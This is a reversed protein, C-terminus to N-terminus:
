VPVATFKEIGVKVLSAFIAVADDELETPLQAVTPIYPYDLTLPSLTDTLGGTGIAKTYIQNNALCYYGLLPSQPRLFDHYQSIWCLINGTGNLASADADRVTAHRMQSTLANLPTAGVGNTLVVTANTMLLHRKTRDSATQEALKHLANAMISELELTQRNIVNKDADTGVIALDIARDIFENVTM